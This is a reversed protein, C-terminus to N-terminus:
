SSGALVFATFAIPPPAIRAARNTPSALVASLGLIGAELAPLLHTKRALREAFMEVTLRLVDAYQQALRGAPENIDIQVMLPSDIQGRLEERKSRGDETARALKARM